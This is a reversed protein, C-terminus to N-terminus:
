GAKGHDGHQEGADSAERDLTTAAAVAGGMGLLFWFPFGISNAELLMTTVSSIAMGATAAATGALMIRRWGQAHRAASLIRLGPLMATALLAAFGLIGMEILIHLWFNDVTRQLPNWFLRDTGYEAYIPTPYNTAVAGGYRGPGVGVLPHDGLIPIANLVFLTRLDGGLGITEVRDITSDILEPQEEGPTRPVLLSRPMVAATGFSLVSVLLGLLLTRRDVIALIVGVGLIMAIWAGRSFSVWLALFLVFAVVAAGRRLRPTPLHTSMLLVFPAAIVLFAGFVNPDGFISALRHLEGFRGRVPELGLINPSLLAQAVALIASAVVIGVLAGIAYLSQRLTFGVLRPLFFLVTADLTFVLGIAAIHAPVGNLLASVVGIAAFVGLGLSVPHRLAQALRGDMWARAAIVLGVALLLGESLLHAIAELAPPLVDAVVYRDVMPSLVVVVITARPWRLASYAALAVLGVGFAVFAVASVRAALIAGVLLLVALGTVVIPAALGRMTISAPAM